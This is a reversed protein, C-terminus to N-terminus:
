GSEYLTCCGYSRATDSRKATLEPGTYVAHIRLPSLGNEGPEPVPGRVSIRQPLQDRTSCMHSASTSMSSPVSPVAMM